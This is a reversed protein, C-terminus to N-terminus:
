SLVAVIEQCEREVDAATGRCHLAVEARLAKKFEERARAYERHVREAPQQLQEAIARIPMGEAFRLRLIDVRRVADPGSAEAWARQREAARAVMRQAWALDFQRSMTQQDAPLVELVSPTQARRVRSQAAREEYRLAVNRAVGFLFARFTPTRAADLRSLAGGSRFLDLFVEQVADDVLSLVGLGRWRRVLFARVIGLYTEAFVRAARPEGAAAAHVVTWCTEAPVSM